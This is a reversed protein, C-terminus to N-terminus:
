INKHTFCRPIQGLLHATSYLHFENDNNNDNNSALDTLGWGLLRRGSCEAHLANAEPPEGRLSVSIAYIVDARLCWWM